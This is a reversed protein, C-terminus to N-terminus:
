RAFGLQGKKKRVSRILKTPTESSFNESIGWDRGGTSGKTGVNGLGGVKVVWSRVGGCEGGVGITKAGHDFGYRTKYEVM